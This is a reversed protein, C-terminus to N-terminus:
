HHGTAHFIVGRDGRLNTGVIEQYAGGKADLDTQTFEYKALESVMFALARDSLTIEEKGRFLNSYNKKVEEFLPVIRRRIEKRGEGDFQEKSEEAIAGSHM